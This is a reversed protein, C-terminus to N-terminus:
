GFKRLDTALMRRRSNSVDAPTTGIFSSIISPSFHLKVLLCIRYEKTSLKQKLSAFGSVYKEITEELDSWDTKTMKELPHSELYVLKLYVSSQKLQKDLELLNRGINVEEYKKVESQLKQIMDEKEKVLTDIYEENLSHLKVLEQQAVNLQQVCDNYMKQTMAIRQNRKKLRKKYITFSVAFVLIACIVVIYIIEMRREAKLQAKNAIEKNRNYDYM